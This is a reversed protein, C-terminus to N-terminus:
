APPAQFGLSAQVALVSDPDDNTVATTNAAPAAWLFARRLAGSDPGLAIARVWRAADLPLPLVFNRVLDLADLPIDVTAAAEVILDPEGLPWAAYDPLPPTSAPDGAPSGGAVWRAILDNEAASLPAINAYSPSDGTPPYPPMFGDRTVMSLLRGRQRAEQYTTLDFPTGGGPRHCSTCHRFLIPAVHEAFTVEAPDQPAAARSGLLSISILAASALWRGRHPRRHM